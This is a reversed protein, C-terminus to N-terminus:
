VQGIAPSIPPNTNVLRSTQYLSYRIIFVLIVSSNPILYGMMIAPIFQSVVGL